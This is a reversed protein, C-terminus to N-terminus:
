QRRYTVLKLSSTPGPQSMAQIQHHGIVYSEIREVDQETAEAHLWRSDGASPSTELVSQAVQSQADQPEPTDSFELGGMGVVVAFAVSAAVALGLLPGMRPKRASGSVSPASEEIRLEDLEDEELATELEAWVRERLRGSAGSHERRLVSGILHYSEWSRKLAHDTELEDLVRRLEFEDAEGDVIASLSERLKESM